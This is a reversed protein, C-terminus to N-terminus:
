ENVYQCMAQQGQRRLETARSECFDRYLFREKAVWKWATRVQGTQISQFAELEAVYLWWAGSAASVPGANLALILLSVLLTGYIKRSRGMPVMRGEPTEPVSM